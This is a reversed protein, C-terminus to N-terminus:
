PYTPVGYPTKKPELGLPEPDVFFLPSMAISAADTSLLFFLKLQM